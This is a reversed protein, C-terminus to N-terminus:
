VLDARDLRRRALMFLAASLVLPWAIAAFGKDYLTAQWARCRDFFERQADPTHSRPGNSWDSEGRRLTAHADLFARSQELFARDDDAM